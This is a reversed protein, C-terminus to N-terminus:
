GREWRVVVQRMWHRFPTTALGDDIVDAVRLVANEADALCLSTVMALPTSVLNVFQYQAGGFVSEAWQLQQRSLPLEDATRARPTLWRFLAAAPNGLIPEYFLCCGGPRLVRHLERIAQEFHLHHLIARGVVFDFHGDPFDLQHADMVQFRAQDGYTAVAAAIGKESIDIGTVSAPGLASLAPYMWGDYCGYDLVRAGPVSEALVQAFFREGRQTNPCSFVHAFRRHLRDSEAHVTGEDYEQQERTSRADVAAHTEHM